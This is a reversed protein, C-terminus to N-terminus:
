GQEEEDDGEEIKNETRKCNKRQGLQLVMMSMMWKRGEAGDCGVGDNGGGGSLKSRGCGCVPFRLPLFDHCRNGWVEGM